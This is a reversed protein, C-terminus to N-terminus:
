FINSLPKLTKNFDRAYRVTAKKRRRERRGEKGEDQEKSFMGKLLKVRTSLLKDNLREPM